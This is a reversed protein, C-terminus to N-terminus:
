FQILLSLIKSQEEGRGGEVSACLLLLVLLMLMVGLVELTLLPSSHPARM